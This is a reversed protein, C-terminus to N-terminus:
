PLLDAVALDTKPLISSRNILKLCGKVCHKKENEFYEVIEEKM